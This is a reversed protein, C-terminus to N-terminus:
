KKESKLCKRIIEPENTNPNWGIEFNNHIYHIAEEKDGPYDPSFPITPEIDEYLRKWKEVTDDGWPITSDSLSSINYNGHPDVGVRYQQRRLGQTDALVDNIRRSPRIGQEDMNTETNEGPTGLIINDITYELENIDFATPSVLYDERFKEWERKILQERAALLETNMWPIQCTYEVSDQEETNKFISNYIEELEEETIM